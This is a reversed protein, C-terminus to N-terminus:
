VALAHYFYQVMALCALMTFALPIMLMNLMNELSALGALTVFVDSLARGFTGTETNILGSNCFGKALNHPVVKSLMSMIVSELCQLGCFAVLCGYIYKTSSVRLLRYRSDQSPHEYFIVTFDILLLLGAFSLSLLWWLIVRDSYYRSAWGVFISLPVVFVGTSVGLLGIQSVSWDYNYGAIVPVSSVLGEITLKNAFLLIICIWVQVTFNRFCLGARLSRSSESGDWSSLANESAEDLRPPIMTLSARSTQLTGETGSMAEYTVGNNPSQNALLPRVEGPDSDCICQAYLEVESGNKATKGIDVSIYASPSNEAENDNSDGIENGEIFSLSPSSIPSCEKTKLEELGVREPERFFIKVIVTFIAWLVFMLYGPATLGNIIFDEFSPVKIVFHVKQSLIALGPGIATGAASLTVFMASVATRSEMPAIDAICRRNIVRPGGLGIGIRGIIVLEISKFHLALGYLLNGICLCAGSFLLPNKFNKNTWISFLVASAMAAWPTAGILMGALAAHGGLEEIYVASTPVAVGYNVMYLFTSIFNIWLALHHEASQARTATGIEAGMFLGSDIVANGEKAQAPLLGKEILGCLIDRQSLYFSMDWDSYDMKAAMFKPELALTNGVSGLVVLNKVSRHGADRIRAAVRDICLISPEFQMRSKAMDEIFAEDGLHDQQYHTIQSRLVSLFGEKWSGFLAYLGHHGWMSKLCSTEGRRRTRIYYRFLAKGDSKVVRDHTKLVKRIAALNTGVFFFLDAIQSGITRYRQVLDEDPTYDIAFAAEVPGQRLLASLNDAVRGVEALYFLVAGELQRDLLSCFKAQDSGPQHWDWDDDPGLGGPAGGERSALSMMSEAREVHPGKGSHRADPLGGRVTSQSRRLSPHALALAPLFGESRFHRHMTAPGAGGEKPSEMKHHRNDQRRSRRQRRMDILKAEMARVSKMLLPLDVYYESWDRRQTRIYCSLFTDTDKM